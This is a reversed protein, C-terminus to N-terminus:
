LYVCRRPYPGSGLEWTFSCPRSGLVLTEPTATYSYKWFAIINKDSGTRIVFLSICSFTFLLTAVARVRGYGGRSIRTQHKIIIKSSHTSSIKQLMSLALIPFPRQWFWCWLICGFQRGSGDQPRQHHRGGVIWFNNRIVLVELPFANSFYLHMPGWSVKTKESRCLLCLHLINQSSKRNQTLRGSRVELRAPERVWFVSM